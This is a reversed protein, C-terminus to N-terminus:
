RRLTESPLEQFVKRYESAFRGLHHFGYELAIDTVNTSQSDAALLARNCAELRREKLFQTPTKGRHKKFARNLTRYSVGSVEALDVTSIPSSLHEQLYEEIRIVYASSCNRKQQHNDINSSEEWISIMLRFFINELEQLALPSRLLFGDQEIEYWLFNLYRWLSAGTESTLSLISNLHIEPSNQHCDLTQAYTNLRSKDLIVALMECPKIVRIDFNDDNNLIHAKTSDFILSQGRSFIEFTNHLPVTIAYYGRDQPAFVRWHSAHLKFIGLKQLKKATVQTRIASDQYPYCNLKSAIPSMAEIFYDPEHTRFKWLHKQQNAQASNM